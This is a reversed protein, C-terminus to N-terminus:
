KKILKVGEASDNIKVIYVGAPLDAINIKNDSVKSISKVISGTVSYIKVESITKASQLTVIDKAPNPYLAVKNQSSIDNVALDDACTVQTPVSSNAAAGDGNGLQYYNDAGWAWM